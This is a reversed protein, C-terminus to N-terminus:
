EDDDNDEQQIRRLKMWVSIGRFLAWGCLVYGIYERNPHPFEDIKVETFVFLCGLGLFIIVMTASLLLTIKGQGPNSLFM